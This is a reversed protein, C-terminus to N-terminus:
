DDLGGLLQIINLLKRTYARVKNTMKLQANQDRLDVLMKKIDPKGRGNCGHVLRTMCCYEPTKYYSTYGRGVTYPGKNEGRHLCPRWTCLEDCEPPLKTFDTM